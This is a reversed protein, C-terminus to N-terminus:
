PRPFCRNAAEITAAQVACSLHEPKMVGSAVQTNCQDVFTQRKRELRKSHEARNTDGAARAEQKYLAIYRDGASDCTAAAPPAKRESCAALLLVM